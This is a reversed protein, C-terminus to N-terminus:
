LGCERLLAHQNLSLWSSRRGSGGMQLDYVTLARDRAALLLVSELDDPFAATNSAGKACWADQAKKLSSAERFAKRFSWAQDMRNDGHVSHINEGCAMKLYRQHGTRVIGGSPAIEFPPEVVMSSPTNEETQRLRILYAQGGISNASGPLILATTVGGAISLNYSLDHTNIADLSRLWPM